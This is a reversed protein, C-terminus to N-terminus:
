LLGTNNKVASSTIAAATAATEKHLFPSAAAAAASACSTSAAAAPKTSGSQRPGDCARLLAGEVNLGPGFALAPVWAGGLSQCVSSTFYNTLSGFLDRVQPQTHCPSATSSRVQKRMEDLVFLVTASSMNGYQRLVSWVQQLGPAEQKLGLRDCIAQIIMPGGPHLCWAMDAYQVSYAEPSGRMLQVAFEDIASYIASPIEKGLGISMGSNSLEWAMLGGTNPVILSSSQHLEFLPPRPHLAPQQQQQSSSSNPQAIIVAAAGDAFLVSGVMNDVRSDLQM